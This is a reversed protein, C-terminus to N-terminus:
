GVDDDDDDGAIEACFPKDKCSNLVQIIIIGIILALTCWAMM